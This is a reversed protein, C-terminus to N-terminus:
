KALHGPDRAIGAGPSGRLGDGDDAEAAAEGPAGVVRLAEPREEHAVAVGEAVHGRLAPVHARDEIGIAERGALRVCAAPAEEARDVAEVGGEEPDRRTLGVLEVRLLAEQELDGPLGQLVRPDPRRRESPGLRAHEDTAARALVERAQTRGADRAVVAIRERAVERTREGPAEGVHEPETARIQDDVRTAGRGEHRQVEGALAQARPLAIEREGAAHVQDQGRLPHDLEALRAREGRVAPALREVRRRVAIRAAFPAADNRELPERVRERSSVPDARDHAARGDVVVAPACPQGGRASRGLLGQNALGQAGRAHVGGLDREDFRVAGAGREPIRDLEIGERGHVPAGLPPPTLTGDARHLRHDAVQLERRPDSADDLGDEAELAALDRGVPVEGRL